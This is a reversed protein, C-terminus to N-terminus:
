EIAWSERIRVISDHLSGFVGREHTCIEAIGQDM